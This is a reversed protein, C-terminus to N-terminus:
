KKGKTHLFFVCTFSKYNTYVVYYYTFLQQTEKQQLMTTLHAMKYNQKPQQLDIKNCHVGGLLLYPIVGYRLGDMGDDM